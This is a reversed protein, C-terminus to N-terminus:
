TGTVRLIRHSTAELDHDAPAGLTAVMASGRREVVREAGRQVRVTRSLVGLDRPLTAEPPARLARVHQHSLDEGTFRRRDQAAPKRGQWARATCGGQIIADIWLAGRVDNGPVHHPALDDSLVDFPGADV